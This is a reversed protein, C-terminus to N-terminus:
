RALSLILSTFGHNLLTFNLELFQPVNFCGRAKRAEESERERIREGSKMRTMWKYVVRQTRKSNESPLYNIEEQAKQIGKHYNYEEATTFIKYFSLTTLRTKKKIIQRTFIFLVESDFQLGHRPDVLWFNKVPLQFM